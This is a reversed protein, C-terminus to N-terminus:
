KKQERTGMGHFPHPGRRASRDAAAGHALALRVARYTCEAARSAEAALASALQETPVPGVAGHFDECVVIWMDRQARMPLRGEATAETGHRVEYVDLGDPPESIM